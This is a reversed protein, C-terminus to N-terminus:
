GLTSPMRNGWWVENRCWEETRVAMRAKLVMFGMILIVHMISRYELKAPVTSKDLPFDTNVM